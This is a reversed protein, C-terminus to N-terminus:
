QIEIERYHISSCFLFLHFVNTFRNSLECLIKAIETSEQSKWIILKNVVVVVVFSSCFDRSLLTFLLKECTRFLLSFSNAKDWWFFFLLSYFSFFTFIKLWQIAMVHFGSNLKWVFVRRRHRRHFKWKRMMMMMVMM